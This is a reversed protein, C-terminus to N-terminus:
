KRASETMKSIGGSPKASRNTIIKFNRQHKYLAEISDKERFQSIAKKQATLSNIGTLFTL